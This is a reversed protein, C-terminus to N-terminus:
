FEQRYGLYVSRQREDYLSFVLDPDDPNSDDYPPTSGMLNRVGFTLRADWSEIVYTYRFDFETYAPHSGASARFKSNKAISRALISFEHTPNPIYFLTTNNRWQPRGRIGIRNSVGTGPYPETRYYIMHSHEARLQFDGIRTNVKGNYSFDVGQTETSSINLYPAYLSIIRGSPDREAIAGHSAINEGAAEARTIAGYDTDEVLDKLEYFWWDVGISHQKTPQYLVGANTSFSTEEKLNPNGGQVVQYQNANCATGGQRDCYVQDVFSSFGTSQASFLRQMQPAKFGTGASTRFMLSETPKYRFALKPNLTSGFGDYHDLRLAVVSELSQLFQLSMESFVSVSNRAGGGASSSMTLVENNMTRDDGWARYMERLAQTGVALSVPGAGLEGIEGTAQLDFFTNESMNNQQPEYLLGSLDGRQGPAAFPNFQGTNIANQLDAKLAYGKRRERDSVKNYSLSSRWDWTEAFYGKVGLVASGANNRTFSERNGLEAFRYKINTIPAGSVSPPPNVMSLSGDVTAPAFAWEVEKYSYTLRSFATINSTLEYSMENMLAAQKIYPIEWNEEGINYRCNGEFQLSPSCNPDPSYSAGNNTSFSGPSGINSMARKSWVRDESLIRENHRFFLVNTLHFRSTNYGYTYSVDRREGGKHESFSSNAAIEHGSFDKKTIINVVGGLADSGYIASAGDKLVEIREVAAMPIINLDVAGNVADTPLRQGNLLVLTRVQGLGRLDMAATGAGIQGAHERFSGFANVGTDRLVDSVSNYGTRVLDDNDLTLVPSPGEVDIRKIHSGTIELKEVRGTTAPPPTGSAASTEEPIEETSEAAPETTDQSFGSVSFIFVCFVVLLVSHM